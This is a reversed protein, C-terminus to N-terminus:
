HSKSLYQPIIYEINLSSVAGFIKTINCPLTTFDADVIVMKNPMTDNNISNAVNKVSIIHIVTNIIKHIGYKIIQISEAM